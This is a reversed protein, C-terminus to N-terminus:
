FGDLAPKQFLIFISLFTFFASIFSIFAMRMQSTIDHLRNDINRLFIHRRRRPSLLYIHFSTGVGSRTDPTSSRKASNLRRLFLIAGSFLTRKSRQNDGVQDIYKTDQKPDQLNM